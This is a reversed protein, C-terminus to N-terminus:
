GGENFKKRFRKFVKDIIPAEDIFAYQILQKHIEDLTWFKQNDGKYGTGTEIGATRNKPQSSTEGTTQSVISQNSPNVTNSHHPAVVRDKKDYIIRAEKAIQEAM